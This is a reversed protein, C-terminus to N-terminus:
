PQHTEAHEAMLGLDALPAGCRECRIVFGVRDYGTRAANTDYVVEVTFRVIYGDPRTM